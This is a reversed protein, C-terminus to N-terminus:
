AASTRDVIERIIERARAADDVPVLLRAEGASATLLWCSINNELLSGRFFEAQSADKGSWVEVPARVREFSNAPPPNDEAVVANNEAAEVKEEADEGALIALPRMAEKVAACAAALNDPHVRVEWHSIGYFGLSLPRSLAATVDRSQWEKYPIDAANLANLIVSFTVPDQGTWLMAARENWAKERQPASSDEPALSSVLAVDCSACRTFGERYESKCNPCFM